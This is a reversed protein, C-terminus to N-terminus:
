PQPSQKSYESHRYYSSHRPQQSQQAQSADNQVNGLKVVRDYLPQAERNYGQLQTANGQGHGNLMNVIPTLQDTRIKLPDRILYFNVIEDCPPATLSGPYVYFAPNEGIQSTLVETLNVKFTAGVDNFKIADIFPNAPADDDINFFVGIVNIQRKVDLNVQQDSDLLYVIHVEFDYLKDNVWHVSPSHFHMQQYDSTLFDHNIDDGILSGFAGLVQYTYPNFTDNTPSVHDFFAFNKKYTINSVYNRNYFDLYLNLEPDAVVADTNINIPSQERGTKCTGNYNSGVTTYDFPYAFLGNIICLLLISLSLTKTNTM